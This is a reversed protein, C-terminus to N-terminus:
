AGGRALEEGPRIAGGEPGTGLAAGWSAAAPLAFMMAARRESWPGVVRTVEEAARRATALSDAPALLMAQCYRGATLLRAFSLMGVPGRETETAGPARCGVSEIMHIGRMGLNSWAQAIRDLSQVDDLMLLLLFM